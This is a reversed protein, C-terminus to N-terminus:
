GRVEKKAKVAQVVHRVGLGVFLTAATYQLLSGTDVAWSGLIYALGFALGAQVLRMAFTPQRRSTPSADSTNTPPQHQPKKKTM